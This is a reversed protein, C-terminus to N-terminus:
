QDEKIIKKMEETHYHNLIANEQKDSEDIWFFDVGMKDLPHILYEFYSEIVKDDM